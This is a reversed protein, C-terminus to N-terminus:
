KGRVGNGIKNNCFHPDTIHPYRDDKEIKFIPSEPNANHLRIGNVYTEDNVGGIEFCHTSMQVETPDNDAGLEFKAGAYAALDGDGTCDVWIKARYATLGSKNTM